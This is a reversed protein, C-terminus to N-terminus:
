GAKGTRTARVTNVRGSSRARYGQLRREWCTTGPSSQANIMWKVLINFYSIWCMLDGAGLWGSM